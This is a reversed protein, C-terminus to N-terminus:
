NRELGYQDPMRLYLQYWWLDDRRLVRHMPLWQLIIRQRLCLLKAALELQIWSFMGLLIIWELELRVPLRMHIFRYWLGPELSVISHFPLYIYELVPQGPLRVKIFSTDVNSWSSLFRLFIWGLKFQNPLQL